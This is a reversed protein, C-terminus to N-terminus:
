HPRYPEIWSPPPALPAPRARPPATEQFPNKAKGSARLFHHNGRDSLEKAYVKLAKALDTCCSCGVPIMQSEDWVYPKLWIKAVHSNRGGVTCTTDIGQEHLKWGHHLAVETLYERERIRSV